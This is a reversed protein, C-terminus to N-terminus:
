WYGSIQSGGTEGIVPPNATSHPLYDPLNKDYSSVHLRAAIESRPTTLLTEDTM